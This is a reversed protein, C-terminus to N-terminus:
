VVILRDYGEIAIKREDILTRIAETFVFDSKAESLDKLEDIYEKGSEILSLIEAKTQSLATILTEQKKAKICVDCVGCNLYAKENFYGQFIRTRCSETNSAYDKIADVQEKIVAHRPAVQNYYKKLASVELRPTLCTLKPLNKVPDYVVAGYQELLQIKKIAESKSSKSLKAVEFESINIFDQYLGGGYLRLMAKLLPEYARNSITFKYIENSNMTFKVASSKNLSESVLILGMEELKQICFHAKRPAIQYTDAFQKLDFDYSQWQSSGTALKFYNAIAQYVHQVYELTPNRHKENEGLRFLDPNNYLLVAFANKGDRGARGAEQYYAELSDPIDLHVVVRVDPKDIGMGFANTAVIVRYTNKIWNEQKRNRTLPALGAHYFDSTIGHRYLYKAINQTELRSKVYVIAPGKVNNLIEVLKSGKNELNFAAYSLNSRAFSKQFIAPSTFALKECIDKAVDATATATLATKKTDGIWPYIAAIGTYSPRFDYGWQSICHAEDIALLGVDM